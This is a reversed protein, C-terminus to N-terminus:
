DGDLLTQHGYVIHYPLYLPKLQDRSISMIADGAGAQNTENSDVGSKPKKFIPWTILTLACVNRM